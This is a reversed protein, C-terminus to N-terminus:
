FLEIENDIDKNSTLEASNAAVILILYGSNFASIHASTQAHELPERDCKSHAICM